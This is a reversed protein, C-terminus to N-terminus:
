IKDLWRGVLGVFEDPRERHPWHGCGEWLVTASRPDGPVAGEWAAPESRSRLCLAPVRRRGLYARSAARAGFAGPDLYMGAYSDALVHGPTALMQARAADDLSGALQRVAAAAGDERLAALRPLFRTAEQETAGYAPDVAILASVLGPHEVELATVVQAGMSHGVAVVPPLDLQALLGALDAALRAPGYGAAPVSSRGHGRLDVAVVRRREALGPRVPDWARLDGGWGHVLLLVPEGRGQVSYHLRVGDLEAFPM